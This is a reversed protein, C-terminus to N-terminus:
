QVKQLIELTRRAAGARQELMNAVAELQVSALEVLVRKDLEAVFLWPPLPDTWWEPHFGLVEPLPQRPQPM